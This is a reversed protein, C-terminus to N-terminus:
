SISAEHAPLTPGKRRPREREGPVPHYNDLKPSGVRLSVDLTRSSGGSTSSLNGLTGSIAYLEEETVSYSLFYPAPDAKEKLIRFNREMEEYLIKLLPPPQALATAAILGIAATRFCFYM